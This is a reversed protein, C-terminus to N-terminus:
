RDIGNKSRDLLKTPLLCIRHIPEELKITYDCKITKTDDCYNLCYMKNFNKKTMFILHSDTDYFTLVEGSFRLYEPDEIDIYSM